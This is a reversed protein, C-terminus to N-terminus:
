INTLEYVRRPGLREDFEESVSAIDAAVISAVGALPHEARGQPLALPATQPGRTGDDPRVPEVVEAPASPEAPAESCGALNAVAIFALAWECHWLCHRM